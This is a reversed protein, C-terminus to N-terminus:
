LFNSIQIEEFWRGTQNKRLLRGRSIDMLRFCTIGLSVPVRWWDLIAMIRSERIQSLIVAIIWSWSGKTKELWLDHPTLSVKLQSIHICVLKDSNWSYNYINPEPGRSDLSSFHTSKWEACRECWESSFSGFVKRTSSTWRLGDFDMSTWRLGDFDMSTWGGTRSGSSGIKVSALCCAEEGFHQNLKQFSKEWKLWDQWLFCIVVRQDM